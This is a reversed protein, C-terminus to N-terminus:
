KFILYGNKEQLAKAKILVNGPFGVPVLADLYNATLARRMGRVESTLTLVRLIQGSMSKRFLAKFESSLERLERCRATAVDPSVKSEMRSAPTGSRDSYPFVHLYTFPMKKIFRITERHDGEAEGPFGAIVDTGIGADPIRDRVYHVLDSFEAARYPRGMASLIRDSGSQLCIHFHPAIKESAAALDIVRRSLEMPEISSIRVQGLGPLMIIEELLQDLSTQPVLNLGYIGLHIGTLVIEQYGEDIYRRVGDLVQAPPVSRSPGRVSPVICYSCAASCGDQIKMQPRTQNEGPDGVELDFSRGASLEEWVVRGSSIETEHDPRSDLIEPLGQKSRNGIVLDALGKEALARPDRQAYCGTIVIRASPNRRRMKRALQRVQQDSKHTVTCSNVIVIDAEEDIRVEAYGAELLSRRLASSDAQNARCGFTAILFRKAKM